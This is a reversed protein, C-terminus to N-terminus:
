LRAAYVVLSFFRLADVIVIGIRLGMLRAYGRSRTRTYTRERKYENASLTDTTKHDCNTVYAM